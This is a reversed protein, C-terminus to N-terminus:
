RSRLTVLQALDKDGTSIVVRHRCAAAVQALTGIADDAEIGPVELVLWGLLKVVEHIPEIQSRLDDPM